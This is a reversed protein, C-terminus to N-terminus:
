EDVKCHHRLHTCAILETSEYKHGHRTYISKSYTFLSNQGGQLSIQTYISKSYPFAEANLNKMWDSPDM